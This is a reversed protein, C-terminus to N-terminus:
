ECETLMFAVFSDRDVGSGDGSDFAEWASRPDDTFYGCLADQKYPALRDWSFRLVDYDSLSSPSSSSAAPAPTSSSRPVACGPESVGSKSARTRATTSTM